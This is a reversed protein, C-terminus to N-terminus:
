IAQPSSSEYYVKMRGVLLRVVMFSLLEPANPMGSDIGGSPLSVKM